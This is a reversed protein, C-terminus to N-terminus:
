GGPAAGGLLSWGILGAGGLALVSLTLAAGIQRFVFPGNLLYPIPHLLRGLTLAAGLAHVVFPPAGRLETAAVVLLGMAMYEAANGQARVARRLPTVEGDGTGVRHKIRLRVVAASLVVLILANAGIYFTSIPLM